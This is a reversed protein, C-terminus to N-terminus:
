LDRGYVRHRVHWSVGLANMDRMSMLTHESVQVVHGRHYGFRRLEDELSVYLAANAGRGQYAPLLGVASIDVCKTRRRGRMLHLFGVPWLRGGTRQLARSLDPYCVIFGAPEDDKLVIKILHPYTVSLVRDAMYAMEHETMPYFGPVVALADNYIRRISPLWPEIENRRKFHLLGYTGRSRIREAVRRYRDPIRFRENLLGSYYDTEKEFGLERLLADYYRANYAMGANARVGFGDVLLGKGDLPLFGRPGSIRTLGRSRAWAFGAELVARSAERDDVADFFYFFAEKRDHYRNFHVHDLVAVRAAAGESNEAIFFAASSHRYFPHRKTDFAADVDRHLTPVWRTDGRYLRLPM